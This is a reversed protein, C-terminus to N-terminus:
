NNQKINNFKKLKIYNFPIFNFIFCINLHIFLHLRNIINTIIIIYYLCKTVYNYIWVDNSKIDNNNQM